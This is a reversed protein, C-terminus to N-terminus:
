SSAHRILPKVRLRNPSVVVHHGRWRDGVRLASLVVDNLRSQSITPLRLLIVGETAAIIGQHVQSALLVDFTLVFRREANAREVVDVDPAAALEEGAWVVDHGGHRLATVLPGPINEDALLRM